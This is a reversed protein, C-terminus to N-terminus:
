ATQNNMSKNTYLDTIKSNVKHLGNNLGKNVPFGYIMVKAFLSFGSSIHM